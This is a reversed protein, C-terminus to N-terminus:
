ASRKRGRISRINPRPLAAARRDVVLKGYASGSAFRQHSRWAGRRFACSLCRPSYLRTSVSALDGLM